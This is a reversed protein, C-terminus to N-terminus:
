SAKTYRGVFTSHDEVSTFRLGVVRGEEVLWSLDYRARYSPPWFSGFHGSEDVYWEGHTPRGGEIYTTTGSQEFVQTNGDDYAFEGATLAAAIADPAVPDGDHHRPEENM